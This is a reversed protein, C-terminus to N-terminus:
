RQLYSYVPSKYYHYPSPHHRHNYYSPPLEIVYHDGETHCAVVGGATGGAM